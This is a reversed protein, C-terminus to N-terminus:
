ETPLPLQDNKASVCKGASCTAGPDMIAQCTSIMGSRTNQDRQEASQQAALRQLKAADSVKTSYPLYAEPGGCARQGVPLSRCQQSSDCAANGIEAKIQAMLNGAAPTAAAVPRPAPAPAPVSALVPARVPKGESGTDNGAVGSCASTAVILIAASLRTLPSTFTALTKMM